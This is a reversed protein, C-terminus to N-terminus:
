KYFEKRSGILDSQYHLGYNLFFVDGEYTDAIRKITGLISTSVNVISTMSIAPFSAVIHSYPAESGTTTYTFVDGPVMSTSTDEILYRTLMVVESLASM